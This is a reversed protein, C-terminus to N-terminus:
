AAEALAGFFRRTHALLSDLDAAELASQRFAASGPLGKSYAAVYKKLNSAFLGADDFCGAMLEIHREITDLREAHSPEAAERRAALALVQRFIWPNGMAGRGIMVGAAGTEALMAFAEAATTVDGNALVPLDPVAEVVARIADRDANGSYFQARTRGHVSVLEAGESAAM